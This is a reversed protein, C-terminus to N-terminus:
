TVSQYVLLMFLFITWTIIFKNFNTFKVALQKSREKKVNVFYRLIQIFKWYMWIDFITKIILSSGDIITITLSIDPSYRYVVYGLM